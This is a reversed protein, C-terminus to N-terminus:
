ASVYILVTIKVMGQLVEGFKSSVMHIILSNAMGYVIGLFLDNTDHALISHELNMMTINMTTRIETEFVVNDYFNM